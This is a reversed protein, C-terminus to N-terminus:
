RSIQLPPTRRDILQELRGRRVTWRQTRLDGGGIGLLRASGACGEGASPGQVTRHGHSKAARRLEAKGEVLLTLEGELV